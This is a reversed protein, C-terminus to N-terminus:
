ERATQSRREWWVARAEDVLLHARDGASWGDRHFDPVSLAVVVEAGGADGGEARVRVRVGGPGGGVSAVVCPVGTGAGSLSMASPAVGFMVGRVPLGLSPAAAADLVTFDLLAAAEPSPPRALVEAASGMALPVGGDLLLVRDALVAAEALDHTTMLVTLHTEAILTRVEGVLRARTAGDLGSFPEDMFLIEPRVALARAISVRQAEGGSLQHPRVDARGAVGLRELWAAARAARDARGFGHIAMAEEVNRQASMDLLAADQFVTSTRRRLAVANRGRLLEGGYRIEGAAPILLAAALLLTSKGAGNPGLVAVTEGRAVDLGDLVLVERKGRRVRLNRISLASLPSEPATM